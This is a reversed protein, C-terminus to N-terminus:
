CPPPFKNRRRGFIESIITIKARLLPLPPYEACNSRNDQNISSMNVLDHVGRRNKTLPFEGGRRFCLILFRRLSALLRAQLILFPRSFM